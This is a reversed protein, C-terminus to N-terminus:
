RYWQEPDRDTFIIKADPYAATLERWFYCGPWDVTAQYGGFIESWDVHRGEAQKIWLRKHDSRPLVELMHYCPGVGLEELAVKLSLTGTRGFGVGIVEITMAGRMM